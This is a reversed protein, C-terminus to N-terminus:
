EVSIAAKLPINGAPVDLHIIATHGRPVMAEFEVESSANGAEQVEQGAAPMRHEISGSIRVVEGEARLQLGAWFGTWDPQEMYPGTAIRELVLTHGSAASGWAAEWVDPHHFGTTELWSGLSPTDIIRDTGPRLPDTGALRLTVAYVPARHRQRLNTLTAARLLTSPLAMLVLKRGDASLGATEGGTPFIGWSRLLELPGLPPLADASPDASDGQPPSRWAPQVPLELRAAQRGPSDPWPVLRVDGAATVILDTGLQAAFWQLLELLTPEALPCSVMSTGETLGEPRTPLALRDLAPRKLYNLSRVQAELRPMAQALPQPVSWDLHAPHFRAMLEMLPHRPEQVSAPTHVAKGPRNAVRSVAAAKFSAPPPGGLRLWMWLCGLVLCLILLGGILKRSSLSGSPLLSLRSRKLFISIGTQM